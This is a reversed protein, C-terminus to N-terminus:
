IAKWKIKREEESAYKPANYRRYLKYENEIKLIGYRYELAIEHAKTPYIKGHNVLDVLVLLRMEVEKKIAHAYLWLQYKDDPTM